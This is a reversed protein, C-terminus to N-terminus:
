VPQSQRASIKLHATPIFIASQINVILINKKVFIENDHVPNKASYKKLKSTMSM